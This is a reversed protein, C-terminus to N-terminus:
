PRDGGDLVQPTFLAQPHIGRRRTRWAALGILTACLGLAGAYTGYVPWAESKTRAQSSRHTTLLVPARAPKTFDFAEM